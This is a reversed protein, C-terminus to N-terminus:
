FKSFKFKCNKKFMEIRDIQDMDGHPILLGKRFTLLTKPQFDFMSTVTKSKEVTLRTELM